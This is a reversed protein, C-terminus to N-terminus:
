MKLDKLTNIFFNKDLTIFNYKENEYNELKEHFKEDFKKKTNKSIKNSHKEESTNQARKCSNEVEQRIKDSSITAFSINEKGLNKTLQDELSSSITSKGSAVLGINTFIYINGKKFPNTIVSTKNLEHNIENKSFLDNITLTKILPTNNNENDNENKLNIKNLNITEM